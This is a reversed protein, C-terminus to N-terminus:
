LIDYLCLSELNVCVVTAICVMFQIVVRVIFYSYQEQISVVPLSGSILHTPGAAGQSLSSTVLLPNCSNAFATWYHLIKKQADPLYGRQKHTLSRPHTTIKWLLLGLHVTECVSYM